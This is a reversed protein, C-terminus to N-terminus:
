SSRAAALAILTAPTARAGRRSVRLSGVPPLMYVLKEAVDIDGGPSQPLPQDVGDRLGAASGPAARRRVTSESGYGVLNAFYVVLRRGSTEEIKRILDQRSYRPSHFTEFLPSRQPPQEPESM